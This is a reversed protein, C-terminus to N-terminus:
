VVNAEPQPLGKCFFGVSLGVFYTFFKKEESINVIQDNNCKKLM